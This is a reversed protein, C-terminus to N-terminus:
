SRRLHRGEEQFFEVTGKSDNQEDVWDIRDAILPAKSLNTNYTDFEPVDIINVPGPAPPPTFGDDTNL